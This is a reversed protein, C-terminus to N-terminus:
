KKSKWIFFVITAFIWIAFREKFLMGVIMVIIYWILGICVDNYADWSGSGTSLFINQSESVEPEQYYVPKIIEIYPALKGNLDKEYLNIFGYHSICRFAGGGVFETEIILNEKSFLQINQSRPIKVITGIGYRVGKFEFYQTVSM